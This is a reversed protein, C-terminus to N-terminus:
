SVQTWIMEITRHKQGSMEKLFKFPLWSAKSNECVIVQGKRSKCWEALEKFDIKNEIYREGGFQYPADIFWTAELDPLQRYDCNTIMWNKIYPLNKLIRAKTLQWTTHPRWRSDTKPFATKDAYTTVINHPYPVGNNCCFGLLNREVTSLNFNRVDDGRKIDPLNNIQESTATKLYNWIEYIITYLDNLWVQNNEYAYKCSYIASGAFPEIILNYLPKPYHMVIKSKGGYYSFM